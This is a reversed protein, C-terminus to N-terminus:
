DTIPDIVLGAAVAGELTDWWGEDATVIASGDTFHYITIADRREQREAESELVDLLRTGDELTWVDGSGFREAIREAITMLRLEKKLAREVIEGMSENREVAALKLAKHIEPNVYVSMKVKGEIYGARYTSV